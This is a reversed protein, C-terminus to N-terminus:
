GFGIYRLVFKHVLLGSFLNRRANSIRVLSFPFVWTMAKYQIIALVSISALFVGFIVVYRADEDRCDRKFIEYLIPRLLNDFSITFISLLSAYSVAISYLGVSTLDLFSGIILKDFSGLLLLGISHPLLPLGYKFIDKIYDINISIEFGDEKVLFYVGLFCFIMEILFMPIIRAEAGNSVCLVWLLVGIFGLFSYGLDFFAFSKSNKQVNWLKHKYTKVITLLLMPPLILYLWSPLKFVNFRWLLYFLPLVSVCLAVNLFVANFIYCQFNFSDDDKFFFKRTVSGTGSLLVFGSLGGLLTFFLSTIGFEEPSLARTLLPILFVPLGFISLQSLLYFTSSKFLDLIQINKVVM